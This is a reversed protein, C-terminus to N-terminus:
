SRDRPSDVVVSVKPTRPLPLDGVVGTAVETLRPLLDAEASLRSKARVRVKRKSATVTTGTVGDQGRVTNGVLRALSRPSTVVSVEPSPDNMPVTKPGRALAAILLLVLGGVALLIATLRVPQDIWSYGGLNTLWTRWPVLLSGHGPRAWAWGVEVALVFGVAALALGLLAAFLRLVVRV